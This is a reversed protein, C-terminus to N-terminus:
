YNNRIFDQESFIIEGEEEIPETSVNRQLTKVDESAAIRKRNREDKHQGLSNCLVHKSLTSGLQPNEDFLQRMTNGGIARAETISGELQKNYDRVRELQQADGEKREILAMPQIYKEELMFRLSGDDNVALARSTDAPDYKVTWRVYAHQRFRPDFCDYFHEKGEITPTLGQGELKNPETEAGFQYLYEAYNLKVKHDEPMKGFLELYRERKKQRELEIIRQIQMYCGDRDPFIHRYKNMFEANPQNNKDTTIGFGSWNPMLQCYTKNLAKFYPEVPKAKANKVRAPTYMKSIAEYAPTLTKISYHDTQLQAVRYYEGFLEKVHNEANRLASKILEPTEHTGVAYGIPYKVCPDLVVVITLRNHYTVVSHGKSDVTRQQYLLEADWGDVSWFYLPYTPAKRKVQMAKQNRFETAGLNGPAIEMDLKKRWVAIANDTIKKWQMKEAIENYFMATQANDFNRGDGMIEQLVNVKIDDDVKAASKNCFNKHILSSYGLQMYKRYKDEKLKRENTPLSHPCGGKQPDRELKNIAESIQQWLGTKSGGLAKRRADTDNFLKQIANLIYANACYEAQTDEPLNRGDPLLYTSFFDQAKLDPEIMSAFRNRPTTEYPNGYREIIRQKLDYRLNDYILLAHSGKGKGERIKLNVLNEKSRKSYKEYATYNMIPEDGGTLEPVSVCLINNYYEM